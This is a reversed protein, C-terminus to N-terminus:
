ARDTLPKEMRRHDPVRGHRNELRAHRTATVIFGARQYLAEARPNTVAVDLVAVRRTGARDPHLLHALLREGIGRGRFDPHVGLQGVYHEGRAPPRIVTEARLGRVIPLVAAAGYHALFQRAAVLTFGLMADAGWCAGAAVVRDRWVGVHHNRWGFQGAGDAFAHALFGTAAHRRTGLVYDFSSPGSSYILPVAADTDEPRAPRFTVDM